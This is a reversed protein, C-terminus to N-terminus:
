RVLGIWCKKGQTESHGRSFTFPLHQWPMGDPNEYEFIKDEASFFSSNSEFLCLLLFGTLFM